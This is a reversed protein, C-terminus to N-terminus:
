AAVRSAKVPAVPTGAIDLRVCADAYGMARKLVPFMRAIVTTLGLFAPVRAGFRATVAARRADLDPSNLPVAQAFRFASAADPGAGDDDGRVLAMLVAALVGAQLATRIVLQACPGCDEHLTAALKAAFFATIPLAARYEGAAAVRSFQWFGRRDIDVLSHMYSGDDAYSHEFRGIFAYFLFKLM